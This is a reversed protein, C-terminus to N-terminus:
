SSGGDHGNIERFCIEWANDDNAGSEGAEVQCSFEGIIMILDDDNVPIIEMLELREQILYGHRADLGTGYCERQPFEKPVSFM